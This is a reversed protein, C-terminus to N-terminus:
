KFVVFRKSVVETESIIECFYIGASLEETDFEFTRGEKEELHVQGIDIVTSGELSLIKISAVFSELDKNEILLTTLGRTPNPAINIYKKSIRARPLTLRSPPGASHKHLHGKDDPVEIVNPPSPIQSNARIEELQTEELQAVMNNTQSNNSGWREELFDQNVAQFGSGSDWDITVNTDWNSSGGKCNTLEVSVSVFDHSNHPLNDHDEGYVMRSIEETCTGDQDEYLLNFTQNEVILHYTTANLEMPYGVVWPSWTNYYSGYPLSLVFPAIVRPILLCRPFDENYVYPLNGYSDIEEGFHLHGDEDYWFGGLYDAENVISMQPLSFYNDCSNYSYFEDLDEAIKIILRDEQFQNPEMTFDFGPTPQIIVSELGVLTVPEDNEKMTIGFPATPNLFINEAVTIPPLMRHTFYPAGGNLGETSNYVKESREFSNITLGGIDWYAADGINSAQSELQVDNDQIRFWLQSFDEDPTLCIAFFHFGNGPTEFSGASWGGMSYGEFDPDIDIPEYSRTLPPPDADCEATFNGANEEQFTTFGDALIVAINDPFNKVRTYGTLYYSKDKKFNFPFFVGESEPGTSRNEEGTSEVCHTIGRAAYMRLYNGVTPDQSSFINPSGNVITWPTGDCNSGLPDMANCNVTPFSLDPIAQAALVNCLLLMNITFFM